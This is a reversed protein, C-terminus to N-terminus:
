YNSKGRKKIMANLLGRHSAKRKLDTKLMRKGPILGSKLGAVVLGLISLLIIVAFTVWYTRSTYVNQLDKIETSFYSTM